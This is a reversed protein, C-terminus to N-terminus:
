FIGERFGEVGPKHLEGSQTVQNVAGSESGITTKEFEKM